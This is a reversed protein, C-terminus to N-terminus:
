ESNVINWEPEVKVTIVKSQQFPTLTLSYSHLMLHEFDSKAGYISDGAIPLGYESLHVRIQHTRGTKPMAEILLYKNKEKLIEKVIKFETTALDGDVQTTSYYKRDKPKISLFNSITFTAPKVSRLYGSTDCSVCLYTKNIERKRFLRSYYEHATLNKSFVVLGTTDKDIRNVPQVTCFPNESEYIIYQQVHEKLSIPNNGDTHVALNRPKNVIITNKDEFIVEVKIPNKGVNLKKFNTRLLYHILKDRNKIVTKADVIDIVDENYLKKFESRTIGPFTEQALKILVTKEKLKM